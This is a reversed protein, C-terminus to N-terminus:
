VNAAKPDPGYENDGAQGDLCLFVLLVVAGVLPVLGLFFWWGSRGTDHLRRVFVGLGPLLVALVYAFYLFMGASNDHMVGYFSITWLVAVVVTNVLTFMWYERRRARGGFEAYKGLVRLYWSM